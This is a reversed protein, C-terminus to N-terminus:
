LPGDSTMRRRGNTYKDGKEQLEQVNRLIKLRIVQQGKNVLASVLKVQM